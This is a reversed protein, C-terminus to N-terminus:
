ANLTQGPQSSCLVPFYLSSGKKAVKAAEAAEKKALKKAEIAAEKAEKAEKEKEIRALIEEPSEEPESVVEM